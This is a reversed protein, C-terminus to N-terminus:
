RKEQDQEMMREEMEADFLPETSHESGYHPLEAEEIILLKEDEAFKEDRSAALAARRERRARIKKVIRRSGHFALGMLGLGALISGLINETVFANISTSIYRLGNALRKMFCRMKRGHRRHGFPKGKRLPHHKHHLRGVRDVVRDNQEMTQWREASVYESPVQGDYPAYEDSSMRGAAAHGYRGKKVGKCPKGSRKAEGINSAGFIAKLWSFFGSHHHHHPHHRWKPEEDNSPKDEVAPLMDTVDQLTSIGQVQDAIVAQGAISLTEVRTIKSDDSSILLQIIPAFILSEHEIAVGEVEKIRIFLGLRRMAVGQVPTAGVEGDESTVAWMKVPVEESQIKVELGVIGPSFQSVLSDMNEATWLQSPLDLPLSYAEAKVLSVTATEQEGTLLSLKEDNISLSAEEPNIQIRLAIHTVRELLLRNADNEDILDDIRSLQITIEGRDLAEKSRTFDIATSEVDLLPASFAQGIGVLAAALTALALKM